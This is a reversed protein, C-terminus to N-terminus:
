CATLMVRVVYLYQQTCLVLIRITSLFGARFM